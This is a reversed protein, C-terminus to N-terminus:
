HPKEDAERFERATAILQEGLARMESGTVESIESLGLHPPAFAVEVLAVVVVVAVVAAVAVAVTVATVSDLRGQMDDATLGESRTQTGLLSYVIEKDGHKMIAEALDRRIAAKDFSGPADFNLEEAVKANYERAWERFGDNSFIAFILRNAESIKQSSVRGITDSFYSAITGFPNRKFSSPLDGDSQLDDMLRRLSVAFEPRSIVLLDAYSDNM